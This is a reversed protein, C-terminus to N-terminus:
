TNDSVEFRGNNAVPARIGQAGYEAKILDWRDFEVCDGLADGVAGGLM